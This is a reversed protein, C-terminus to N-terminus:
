WVNVGRRRALSAAETNVASDGDSTRSSVGWGAAGSVGAMLLASAEAWMTSAAVLTSAVGAGVM